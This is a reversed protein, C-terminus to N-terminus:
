DGCILDVCGEAGAVNTYGDGVRSGGGIGRICGADRVNV